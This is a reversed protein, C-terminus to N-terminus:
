RPLCSKVPAALPGCFFGYGCDMDNMCAAGAQGNGMCVFVDDGRNRCFLGAPCDFNTTCGRAAMPGTPAPGMGPVAGQSPTGRFAPPPMPPPGAPAPVVGPAPLMSQRQAVALQWLQDARERARAFRAEAQDSPGQSLEIALMFDRRDYSEQWSLVTGDELTVSAGTVGRMAELRQSEAAAILAPVLLQGEAPSLPLTYFRSGACGSVFLAFVVLSSSRVM